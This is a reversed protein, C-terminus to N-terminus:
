ILYFDLLNNHLNDWGPLFVSLKYGPTDHPSDPLFQGTLKRTVMREVIYVCKEPLKCLPFIGLVAIPICNHGYIVIVLSHSGEYCVVPSFESHQFLRKYRRTTFFESLIHARHAVFAIGIFIIDVSEGHNGSVSPTSNGPSQEFRTDVHRFRDSFRGSKKHLFVIVTRSIKVLLRTESFDTFAWECGFDHVMQDM